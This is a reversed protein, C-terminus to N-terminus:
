GALQMCEEGSAHRPAKVRFEAVISCRRERVPCDFQKVM